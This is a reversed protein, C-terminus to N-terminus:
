SYDQSTMTMIQLNSAPFFFLQQISKRQLLGVYIGAYIGVSLIILTIWLWVTKYGCYVQKYWQAYFVLSDVLESWIM